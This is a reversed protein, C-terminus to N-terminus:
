VPTFVVTNVGDGKLVGGLREMAPRMEIPSTAGMFIFSIGLSFVFITVAVLIVFATQQDQFNAMLANLTSTIQDM